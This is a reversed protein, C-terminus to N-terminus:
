KIEKQAKAKLLIKIAELKARYEALFDPDTESKLAKDIGITMNSLTEPTLNYYYEGKSNKFKCAEEISRPIQTLATIETSRPKLIANSNETSRTGEPTEKTPAAQEPDPGANVPEPIVVYPYSEPEAKKTVPEAKKTGPLAWAPLKPTEKLVPTKGRLEIAVWTNPLDYLYRGVGFKVSARKFSDSVGGKISEIDSVDASDSKTIWEGNIRASLNCLFGAPGNQGPIPIYEDRWNEPGLVADWRDMVPRAQLYALAIGKTKDGNTAGVRWDIEEAPFPESLKKFIEHTEM